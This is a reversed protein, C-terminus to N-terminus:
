SILVAGQRIIKPQDSTVDVVTSEAGLQCEGKIIYDALKIIDPNLKKYSTPTKDGHFNASTGVLPGVKQILSRVLYSNPMRFGYKRETNKGQLIVTLGGPWYKKILRKALDNIHAIKAVQSISSVLIPFPQNKPSGKIQYIRNVAQRNDFRCGIGYVTDTPFIVVGGQKLIQVAKNINSSTSGETKSLTSVSNVSHTSFKGSSGISTKLTVERNGRKARDSSSYTTPTIKIMRTNEGTRDLFVDIREQPLQKKMKEAWEIAVISNQSFIENLGLTKLDMPKQARYLDVHHFILSQNNAIFPYSRIFIFTPSLIRKKIGLGKALGQVFITKGAGLPGYLAVIDGANLKGALNQAVKQTQAASTTKVEM